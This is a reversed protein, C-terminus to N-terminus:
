ISKILNDIAEQFMDLREPDNFFPLGLILYDNGATLMTNMIIHKEEIQLLFDEKWKESDILLEGKPEVYVQFNSNNSNKNKEVFLLFDPEFREGNDFSYIALEPIRENRVLYYSVGLAELKPSIEREFYIVFLKEQSTGYNDDYAYWPKELLNLQYAQNPNRTQSHGRGGSEADKSLFISKDKIVHSIKNGYFERTGEYTKQINAIHSAVSSFADVLGNYFDRGSIDESYYTIELVNNGLYNDSTLFERMTRIDPYKEKIVNFRLEKYKESAGCLIHYEIDKFKYSKINLKPTIIEDDGFLNVIAGSGERKSYRHVQYRQKDELKIIEHRGKVKRKNTFVVGKKYVDSEKFCDKLTYTLKIQKDDVMGTAILAQRLEAIYRSDHKSHFYMTELIRNPNELDYDYKRKFKEQDDTIQFPCYRAGRGILQAEKITYSGVKGAKGSGQRTEYLRVIDFLNLVDWGENLMDVTFIIRIHNDKDELSNLLRQKEDTNDTKSNIIIAKEKSFSYRISDVLLNMSEDKNKFYNLATDLQLIGYSYLPDLEAPALSELKEYFLRYQEESQPINSSKMLLVPKINKGVDAFLYRRYESVIMAMLTREWPTADTAFNQFEKTYGSQRFELLPYNYIIKDRYKEKVNDDKLDATATFELMIHEKNCALANMVSYEWSNKAEEESKSMKTMTNIHHSEDSIFVIKNGEFDDFTLANEKPDMLDFHLKQTTTFCINIDDNASLGSFNSVSNIKIKDGLYEIEDAFLYKSSLPETFNEKTKELINTQNVFFLFNRYGKTYLYLILGAMIVTKGSGTAMHFLTHIQKNKSLTENEVYSIFYQFAEEQYDRLVIHDSLGTRIIDPIDSLHGYKKLTNMEEYLFLKSM